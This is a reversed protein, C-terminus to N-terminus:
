RQEGASIPETANPQGLQPGYFYAGSQIDTLEKVYGSVGEVTSYRFMQLGMSYVTKYDGFIWTTTIELNAYRPTEKIKKARM